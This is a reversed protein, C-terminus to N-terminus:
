DEEKYYSLQGNRLFRVRITYKPVSPNNRAFNEIEEQAEKRSTVAKDLPISSKRGTVGSVYTIMGYGKCLVQKRPSLQIAYGCIDCSDTELQFAVDHELEKTKCKPCLM